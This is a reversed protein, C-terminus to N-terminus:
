VPDRQQGHHNEHDHSRCQVRLLPREDAVDIGGTALLARRELDPEASLVEVRDIRHEDGTRADGGTDNIIVPAHVILLYLQQVFM